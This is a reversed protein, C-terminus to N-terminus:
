GDHSTRSWLLLGLGNDELYRRADERVAEEAPGDTALEVLVDLAKDILGADLIAQRIVDPSLSDLRRKAAELQDLEPTEDPDPTADTNM